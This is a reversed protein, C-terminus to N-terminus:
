QDRKLPTVNETMKPEVAAAEEPRQNLAIFLLRSSMQDFRSSMRDLARHLADLNTQLKGFRRNVLWHTYWIFLLVLITGAAFVAEEITM